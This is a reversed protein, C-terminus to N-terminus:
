LFETEFYLGFLRDGLSTPTVSIAAYWDHRTDETFSGFPRLGSTGPSSVMPLFTPGGIEEWVPDGLGTLTQEDEEHRIEACYATLGPPAITFNPEGGTFSGDFIYLRATLTRVAIDNEFRINITALRNPLQLLNMGSGSQGHIVISDSVRKNNNAEFGLLIGSSDTVFTRNNFDGINISSGFDDGFFGVATDNPLEQDEGLYLTTSAAM